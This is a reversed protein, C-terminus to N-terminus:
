GTTASVQSVYDEPTQTAEGLPLPDNSFHGAARACIDVLEATSLSALKARATQQDRLDRRILGSNAQSIEVFPERTRHHPATTVDLSRYPEGKRIIPIHLMYCM